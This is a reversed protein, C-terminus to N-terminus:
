GNNDPTLEPYCQALEPKASRYSAGPNVLARGRLAERGVLMRFLMTDRNTLTIEISWEQAGIRLPTQIVLRNERHGGSDAVMREDVVEACCVRAIDKRHQLPHVGFRVYSRGERRFRDVYFAHIASTRAGTDVKAKIAPIKLAPLAVWERWGLL